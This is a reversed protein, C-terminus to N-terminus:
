FPYSYQRKKDDELKCGVHLMMGRRKKLKLPVVFYGNRLEMKVAPTQEGTASDEVKFAVLGKEVRLNSESHVFRIFLLYPYKNENLSELPATDTARYLYATAFVGNDEAEGLLRAAKPLIDVPESVELTEDSSAPQNEQSFVHDSFVFLIFILFLTVPRM